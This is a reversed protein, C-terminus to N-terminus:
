DFLFFFFMNRTIYVRGQRLQDMELRLVLDTNLTVRFCIINLSYILLFQFLFAHYNVCKVVHLITKVYNEFHYMESHM